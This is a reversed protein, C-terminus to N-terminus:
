NDKQKGQSSRDKVERIWERTWEVAELDLDCVPTALFIMGQIRGQQLWRHGLEVQKKMREVSLPKNRSFDYMYCGLVISTDAAISELKALNEELNDLEEPRWTWLTIEDVHQLHQKARPGIQNTYVVVSLRLRRDGIVLRERIQRLEEPDLSAPM